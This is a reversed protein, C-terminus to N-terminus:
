ADRQLKLRHYHLAIYLVDTWFALCHVILKAIIYFTYMIRFFLKFHLYSYIIHVEKQLFILSVFTDSLTEIPKSSFM